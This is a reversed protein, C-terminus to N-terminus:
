NKLIKLVQTNGSIGRIGLLYIGAPYRSLDISGGSFFNNNEQLQRGDITMVSVSGLSAQSGTIV